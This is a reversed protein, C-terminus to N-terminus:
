ENHKEWEVHIQEEKLHCLGSLGRQPFNWNAGIGNILAFPANIKSALPLWATPTPILQGGTGRERARTM